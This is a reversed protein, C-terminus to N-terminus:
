DHFEEENSEDIFSSEAEKSPVDKSVDSKATSYATAMGVLTDMCGEPLANYFMRLRSVLIQDTLIFDKKEM